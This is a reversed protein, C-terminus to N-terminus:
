VISKKINSEINLFDFDSVPVIYKWTFDGGPPIQAVSGYRYKGITWWFGDDSVVVAGKNSFLYLSWDRDTESPFIMTEGYENLQGYKNLLFTGTTSIPEIEICFEGYESVSNLKCEGCLPSYFVDGVEGYLLKRLDVKDKM